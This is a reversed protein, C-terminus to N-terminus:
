PTDQEGLERAMSGVTSDAATTFLASFTSGLDAAAFLLTVNGDWVVQGAAPVLANSGTIQGKLITKRGTASGGSVTLIKVDHLADPQATLTGKNSTIATSGQNPTAANLLFNLMSGMKIAAGAAPTRNADGANLTGRISM